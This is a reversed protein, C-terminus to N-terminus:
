GSRAGKRTSFGTKVADVFDDASAPDNFWRTLFPKRTEDRVQVHYTTVQRGEKFFTVKDISAERRVQWRSTKIRERDRTEPV